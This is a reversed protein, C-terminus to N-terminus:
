LLLICIYQGSKICILYILMNPSFAHSPPPFLFVNFDPHIPGQKSALMEARSRYGCKLTNRKGQKERTERAQEIAGKFVFLPKSPLYQCSYSGKADEVSVKPRHLYHPNGSVRVEAMEVPEENDNPSLQELNGNRSLQRLNGCSKNKQSEWTATALRVIQGRRSRPMPVSTPISAEILNQPM